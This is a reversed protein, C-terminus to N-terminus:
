VRRVVALRPAIDEILEDAKWLVEDLGDPAEDAARRIGPVIGEALGQCISSLRRQPLGIDGAVARLENPGVADIEQVGGIAMGMERSLDPFWTTCVLDYAPALALAAWDESYLISLNKLHNDCNGILYNFCILRALAELDAIPDEAADSIFRAIRKLSGGDLEAYKSGSTLGFVQTFDEQHLRTVHLKGCDVEAARDFRESCIVPVDLDLLETRAARVGCERAARMCLYELYSVADRSSVKLIHTSAASDCPRLWGSALPLGPMHGLGVKNQTGALSLRSSGNLSAVGEPKSLSSALEEPSVPEYFPSKPMPGATIALDGICDLGCAALMSLYDEERIHLGAAMTRRAPGEPVLGEFYPAAEFGSYPESRLPLSQSMPQAWAKSLYARDYTFQGAPRTLSGVLVPEGRGVRYVKLDEAM